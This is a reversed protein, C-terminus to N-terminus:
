RKRLGSWEETIVISNGPNTPDYKVSAPLGIRCSHLDVFQRLYTVDQSAEYGVGGVDYQYILFQAPKDGNTVEQADIVTGDTIRGSINIRSRRERELQEPTKRRSRVWYGVGAGLAAAVMAAYSLYRLSNM